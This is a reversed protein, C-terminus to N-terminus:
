IPSYPPSTSLCGGPASEKGRKRCRPRPPVFARSARWYHTRATPRQKLFAFCIGNRSRWPTLALYYATPPVGPWCQCPWHSLRTAPWRWGTLQGGLWYGVVTGGLETGGALLGRARHKAAACGDFRLLWFCGTETGRRGGEEV